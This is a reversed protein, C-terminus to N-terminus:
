HFGSEQIHYQGYRDNLLTSLWGFSEQLDRAIYFLQAKFYNNDGSRAIMEVLVAKALHYITKVIGSWIAAPLAVIKRGFWDEASYKQNFEQVSVNIYKFQLDAKAHNFIKNESSLHVNEKVASLYSNIEFNTSM